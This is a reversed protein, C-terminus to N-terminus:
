RENLLPAVFQPTGQFEKPQKAVWARLAIIFNHREDASLIDGSALVQQAPLPSEPNAYVLVLFFKFDEDTVSQM